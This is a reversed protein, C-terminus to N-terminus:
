LGSLGSKLGEGTEALKICSSGARLISSKVLLLRGREALISPNRIGGWNSGVQYPILGSSPYQEQRPVTQWARWRHLSSLSCRNVVDALDLAPPETTQM